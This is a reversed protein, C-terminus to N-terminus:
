KLWYESVLEIFYKGAESLYSNKRYCAVVDWSPNNPLSFYPLDNASNKIYYYPLIGCCLNARVMSAITTNNSTEFLIRPTINAEIFLNDVIDRLTSKKHIVVFDEDKVDGINIVSNKDATRALTHTKPVVLYIPESLIHIYNDNNKQEENLTMFGIDIEGFTIKEQLMKVTMENPIVFIDQYKKHFIPYINSFMVSGRGPTFGISLTGKNSQIEDNIMRYTDQKLLLIKKANEVYIEGSKTPKLSVRNRKFLQTDLEKELKLLQQNLASQTICLKEAARTINEEEYIKLIYEILKTDM